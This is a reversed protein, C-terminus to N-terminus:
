ARSGRCSRRFSARAPAAACRYASRLRSNCARHYGATRAASAARLTLAQKQLHRPRKPPQPRNPLGAERRTKKRGRRFYLTRELAPARRGIRFGGALSDRASNWWEACGPRCRGTERARSTGRRQPPPRGGRWQGCLARRRQSRLARRAGIAQTAHAATVPPGGGRRIRRRGGRCVRQGCERLRRVCGCEAARRGGPRVARGAM